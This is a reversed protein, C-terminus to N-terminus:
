IKYQRNNAASIPIYKESVVGHYDQILFGGSYNKLQFKPNLATYLHEGYMFFNCTFRRTCNEMSSYIM